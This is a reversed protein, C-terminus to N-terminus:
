QRHAEVHEQVMQHAIRVDAAEFRFLNSGVKLDGFKRLIKQELSAALPTRVIVIADFDHDSAAQSPYEAEYIDWSNAYGVRYLPSNDLAHVFFVGMSQLKQDMDAPKGVVGPDRGAEIAISARERRRFEARAEDSCWKRNPHFAQQPVNNCYPCDALSCVYNYVRRRRIYTIEEEIFEEDDSQSNKKSDTKNKNEM